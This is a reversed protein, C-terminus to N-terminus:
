AVSRAEPRMEPVLEGLLHRTRPADGGAAAQAMEAIAHELKPRDLVRAAAVFVGAVPTPETREAADFMEEFLKEGPRLGTYAIAVDTEPRLGALVIMTRALEDIRIPEGMDLVFIRGRPGDSRVVDAAAQLVLETAEGVTMFYRRMDPHTVTVPGGAAIQRKFLPVVSGTSGLVNGFRVTIFRTRPASLDLAQCYAEAVRKSAGMVSSPRIAKDTSIMVFARVGTAVAADAVIRTGVVNTLVGECPNEEVLPVHKLAAAHFVVEPREAAFLQGMRGTDRISAIVAARNLEPWRQGLERDIEYLAYEGHDVLVVRAPAHSAVQRAVEAGISGGAGTILVTRNRILHLVPAIDLHVAPRGLLDELSIDELSPQVDSLGSPQVIRRVPLRLSVARETVARVWNRDRPDGAMVLADPAIGDDALRQVIEPLADLGGLVEVGRVGRGTKRAAPEVIGVFRNARTGETGFARLVRDAESVTGVLLLNRAEAEDRRLHLTLALGGDKWMRYLVRPAGLLVLLVFWTIVPVSRPIADLRNIAFMAFLFAAVLVTSAVVIRRLDTLSAFRWMGRGLGFIRFVMAAILCFVGIAPAIAETPPLNEPGYRLVLGIGLALGAMVVDHVIAFLRKLHVETRGALPERRTTVCAAFALLGRPTQGTNGFITM